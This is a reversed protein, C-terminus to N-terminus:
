EWVDLHVFHDEFECRTSSCTPLCANHEVDCRFPRFQSASGLPAFHMKVAINGYRRSQEFYHHDLWFQSFRVEVRGFLIYRFPFDSLRVSAIPELLKFGPSKALVTSCKVTDVDNDWPMM